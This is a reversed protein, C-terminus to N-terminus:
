RQRVESFHQDDLLSFRVWRRHDIRDPPFYCIAHIVRL